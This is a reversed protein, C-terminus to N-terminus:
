KRSSIEALLSRADRASVKSLSIESGDPGKVTVNIGRHEWWAKFISVLAPIVIPSLAIVIEVFEKPYQDDTKGWDKVDLDLTQALGHLLKARELHYQLRGAEDEFRATQQRHVFLTIDRM